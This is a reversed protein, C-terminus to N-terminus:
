QLGPLRPFPHHPICPLSASPCARSWSLVRGERGLGPSSRQLILGQAAPQGGEGGPPSGPPEPSLCFCFPHLRSHARLQQQGLAQM